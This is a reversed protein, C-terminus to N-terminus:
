GGGMERNCCEFHAHDPNQCQCEGTVQIELGCQSCRLRDVREPVSTNRAPNTSGATSIKSGAQDAM